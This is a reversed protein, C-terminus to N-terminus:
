DVFGVIYFDPLKGDTNKSIGLMEHPEEEPYKTAVNWTAFYLRYCWCSGLVDRFYVPFMLTLFNGIGYM